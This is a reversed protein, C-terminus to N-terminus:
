DVIKTSGKGITSKKFSFITKVRLCRHYWGKYAFRWEFEKPNNKWYTDVEQHTLSLKQGYSDTFKQYQERYFGDPLQDAFLKNEVFFQMVGIGTFSSLGIYKMARRFPHFSQIDGRRFKIFISATVTMILPPYLAARWYGIRKMIGCEEASRPPELLAARNPTRFM